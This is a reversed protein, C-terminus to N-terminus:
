CPAAERHNELALMEVENKAVLTSTGKKLCSSRLYILDAVATLTLSWIFVLLVANKMDLCMPFPCQLGFGNQNPDVVPVGAREATISANVWCSLSELPGGFETCNGLIIPPEGSGARGVRMTEIDNRSMCCSDQSCNRMRENWGYGRVSCRDEVFGWRNYEDSTTETFMIVVFAIQFAYVMVVNSVMWCSFATEGVRGVVQKVNNSYGAATLVTVVVLFLNFGDTSFANPYPFFEDSISLKFQYIERGTDGSYFNYGSGMLAALLVQFTLLVLRWSQKLCGCCCRKKCDKGRPTLNKDEHHSIHWEYVIVAIDLASLCVFFAVWGSNDAQFVAFLCASLRALECGVKTCAGIGAPTNQINDLLIGLLSTLFSVTLILFLPSSLIPAVSAGNTTTLDFEVDAVSVGVSEEVLEILLPILVLWTDREKLVTLTNVCRGEKTMPMDAMDVGLSRDNIGEKETM